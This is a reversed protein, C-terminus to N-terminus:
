YIGDHRKCVLTSYGPGPRCGCPYVRPEPKYEDAPDLPATMEAWLRRFWNIM